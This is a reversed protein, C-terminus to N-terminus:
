NRIKGCKDEMQRFKRVITIKTEDQQTAHM